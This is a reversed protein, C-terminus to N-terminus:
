PDSWPRPRSLDQAHSESEDCPKDHLFVRSFSYILPADAGGGRARRVHVLESSRRSVAWPLSSSRKLSQLSLSAARLTDFLPISLSRAATGKAVAPGSSREDHQVLSELEAFLDMDLADAVGDCEPEQQMENVDAAVLEELRLGEVGLTADLDVDVDDVFAPHQAPQQQQAPPPADEDTSSSSSSGDEACAPAPQQAALVAELQAVRQNATDRERKLNAVLALLQAHEEVLGALHANKKMRSREASKRNRLKREEAKHQAGSEVRTRRAAPPGGTEPGSAAGGSAAPSGPSGPSLPAGEDSSGSSSSGGGSSVSVTESDLARRRKAVM